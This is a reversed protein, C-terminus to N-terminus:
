GDDDPADDDDRDPTPAPPPPAPAAAPPPAPAAREGADDDGADDDGGAGDDDSPAGAGPTPADDDDSGGVPAAGADDDDGGGPPAAVGDDDDDDDSPSSPGPDVSPPNGARRRDREGRPRDRRQGEGSSRQEGSRGAVTVRKARRRESASRKRDRGVDDKAAAVDAPADEVLLIPAPEESRSASGVLLAAVAALVLCAVGTLVYRRMESRRDWPEILFAHSDPSFVM